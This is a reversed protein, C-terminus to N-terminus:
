WHVDLLNTAKEFIFNHGLVWVLEKPIIAVMLKNAKSDFDRCRLVKKIGQRDKKEDVLFVGSTRDVQITAWSVSWSAAEEEFLVFDESSLWYVFYLISGSGGGGM